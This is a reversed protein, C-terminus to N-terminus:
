VRLSVCAEGTCERSTVGTAQAQPQRDGEARVHHEARAQLGAHSSGGGRKRQLGGMTAFIQEMCFPRVIKSNLFIPFELLYTLATRLLCRSSIHSEGMAAQMGEAATTLLPAAAGHKGVRCLAEGKNGITALTDVHEDGLVRRFGELAEDYLPWAKEFQNADIYCSALNDVDQLLRMQFFGQDEDKAAVAAAYLQRRVAVVEQQLPLALKFNGMNEHTKSLSSIAVLTTDDQM